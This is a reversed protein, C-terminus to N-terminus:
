MVRYKVLIIIVHGYKMYMSIMTHIVLDHHHDSLIERGWGERQEAM